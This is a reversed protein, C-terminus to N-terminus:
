TCCFVLVAPPMLILVAAELWGLRSYDSLALVYVRVLAQILHAIVLCMTLQSIM